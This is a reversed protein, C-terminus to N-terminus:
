GCRRDRRHGQEASSINGGEYICLVTRCWGCAHSCGRFTNVTWRFPVASGGPVANLVSRAAVEHFVVDAFDPSRVSRLLGPMGPLTPPGGVVEGDVVKQGDWRM